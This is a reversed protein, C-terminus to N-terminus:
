KLKPIAKATALDKNVRHALECTTLEVSVAKLTSVMRHYHNLMAAITEAKEFDTNDTYKCCGCGWETVAVAINNFTVYESTGPKDDAYGAKFKKM